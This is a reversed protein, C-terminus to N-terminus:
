THSLCVFLFHFIDLLAFINIINRSSYFHSSLFMTWCRLAFIVYCFHVWFRIWLWRIQWIQWWRWVWCTFSLLTFLLFFSMLISIHSTQGTRSHHSQHSQNMQPCDNYVYVVCFYSVDSFPVSWIIRLKLPLIASSLMYISFWWIWIPHPDM